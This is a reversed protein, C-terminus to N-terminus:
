VVSDVVQFKKINGENEQFYLRFMNISFKFEDGKTAFSMDFQKIDEFNHIVFALFMQAPKSSLDKTEVHFLVIRRKERLLNTLDGDRDSIFDAFPLAEWGRSRFAHVIPQKTCFAIQYSKNTNAISNSDGVTEGDIFIIGPTHTRKSASKKKHVVPEFDEDSDEDSSYYVENRTEVAERRRSKGTDLRPVVTEFSKPSSFSGDTDDWTVSEAYEDDPQSKRVKTFTKGSSTERVAYPKNKEPFIWEAVDEQPRKVLGEKKMQYLQANVVKKFIPVSLQLSIRESVDRVITSIHFLRGQKAKDGSIELLADRVQKEIDMEVFFAPLLSNDLSVLFFFFISKFVRLM